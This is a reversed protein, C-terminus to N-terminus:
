STDAMRVVVDPRGRTAARELMVTKDISPWHARRRLGAISIGFVVARAGIFDRPGDPREYPDDQRDHDQLRQEAAPLHGSLASREEVLKLLLAVRADDRHDVALFGDAQEANRNRLEDVDLVGLRHQARDPQRRRILRDIEDQVRRTSQHEGGFLDGVCEDIM